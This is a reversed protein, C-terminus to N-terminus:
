HARSRDAEAQAVLSAYVLAFGQMAGLYDPHRSAFRHAMALLEPNNQTMHEIANRTFVEAGQAAIRRAVSGRTAATVRPLADAAGRLQLVLVRYLMAFGAMVEDFSGVDRACKMAMDLIEPNHQRLEESIEMVCADPGLNDFERSVRERTSEAVRPLWSM